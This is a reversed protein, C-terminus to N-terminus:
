LYREWYPETWGNDNFTQRILGSITQLKKRIAAAQFLGDADGSMASEFIRARDERGNIRSYADVFYSESGSGAAYTWRTLDTYGQDYRGYYSFGQPNCADWDWEVSDFTDVSIRMEIAHWLEHHMTGALTDGTVDLVLNYRGGALRAFGVTDLTGSIKGSLCFYLGSESDGNRFQKLFGAPYKGLEEELTILAASLIGSDGCVAVSFDGNACTATIQEGLLIHIGYAAELEEAKERVAHLESPLEPGALELKINALITGDVLANWGGDQATLDAELEMAKPDLVVPYFDLGDEYFALILQPGTLYVAGKELAAFGYTQLDLSTGREMDYLWVKEADKTYCSRILYASQQVPACGVEYETLGSADFVQVAGDTMSGTYVDYGYLTEDFGMGCFGDGYLQLTELRDTLLEVRGTTADIVALGCGQGYCSLCVRAVLLDRSPHVGVLSELRLDCNLAMAGSNGSAVDMRCLMGGDAYYYNKRDRSFFGELNEVAITDTLQLEGDYVQIVGESPVALLVAGDDFCQGVPQATTMLLTQAELRDELLDLIEVTCVVQDHEQSYQNRTALVRGGGLDQLQPYTRWKTCTLKTVAQQMDVPPETVPPETEPPETQNESPLTTQSTTGTPDTNGGTPQPDNACGCLLLALLSVGAVLRNWKQHM